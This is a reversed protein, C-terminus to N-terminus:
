YFWGSLKWWLVGWFNVIISTIILFKKLFSLKGDMGYATLLALFPTFVVTHKWGFETWGPLYYLLSPIAMLFTTVLSSIVLAEKKFSKLIFLFAPSVLLISMGMWPPRLFPFGSIIEPGALFYTYLNFKLYRLDFLGYPIPAGPERLVFNAYGTDFINGFRAFNYYSVLTFPLSFGLFLLASKKFSIKPVNILVIAFILVFISEIRTAYAAGIFFGALYARKGTLVENITLLIFFSTVIYTYWWTQDHAASFFQLTGFAFFATVWFSFKESFGCKKLISWFILVGISAIVINLLDEPANLGYIAVLPILLVAGAPGYIGYKKDGVIAVDNHWPPPNKIEFTGHLFADAIYVQHNYIVPKQNSFIFYVFLTTLFILLGIKGKLTRM